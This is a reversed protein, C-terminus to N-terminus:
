ITKKVAVNNRVYEPTFEIPAILEKRLYAQQALKLVEKAQPYVSKKLHDYRSFFTTDLQDQYESWANGVLKIGDSNIDLATMMIKQPDIAQPPDVQMEGILKADGDMLEYLGWYIENM